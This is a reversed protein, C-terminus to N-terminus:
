WALRSFLFLGALEGTALHVVPLMALQKYCPAWSNDLPKSQMFAPYQMIVFTDLIGNTAQPMCDEVDFLVNTCHVEVYIHLAVVLKAVNTSLCKHICYVGNTM